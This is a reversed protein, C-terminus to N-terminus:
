TIVILNIISSSRQKIVNKILNIGEITSTTIPKAAADM